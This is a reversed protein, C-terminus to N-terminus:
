RKQNYINQSYKQRALENARERLTKDPAFDSWEVGFEVRGVNGMAKQWDTRAIAIGICRSQVSCRILLGLQSARVWEGPGRPSEAKGFEKRQKGLLDFRVFQM